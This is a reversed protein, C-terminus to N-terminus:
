NYYFKKDIKPPFIMTQNKRDKSTDNKMDEQTNSIADSSTCIVFNYYRVTPQVILAM